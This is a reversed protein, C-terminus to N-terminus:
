FRGSPTKMAIDRELWTKYLNHSSVVLQKKIQLDCTYNSFVAIDLSELKLTVAISPHSRQHTEGKGNVVPRGFPPITASVTVQSGVARYLEMFETTPTEPFVKKFPFESNVYRQIKQHKMEEKQRSISLIGPPVSSRKHGYIVPCLDVQM